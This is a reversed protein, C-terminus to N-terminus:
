AAIAVLKYNVGNWIIPITSDATVTETIVAVESHFALTAAGAARDICSWGAHDALSVPATGGNVAIYQYNGTTGATQAEAFFGSVNVSAGGALARFASSHTIIVVGAATVPAASVNVAKNITTASAAKTITNTGFNNFDWLSTKTTTGTALTATLGSLVFARGVNAAGNEVLNASPRINLFVRNSAEVTHAQIGFLPTGTLSTGTTIEFNDNDDNNVGWVWSTGSPITARFQANGLSTTGGVKAEIIAHSAAAANSTNEATFTTNNTSNAGTVSLTRGSVSLGTAQGGVLIEPLDDASFGIGVFSDRDADIVASLPQTRGNFFTLDVSNIGIGMSFVPVDVAGGAPLDLKFHNANADATDWLLVSDGVILTSGEPIVSPSPKTIM